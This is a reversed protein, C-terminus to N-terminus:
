ANYFVVAGSTDSAVTTIDGPVTITPPTTDVYGSQYYLQATNLPYFNAGGVILVSGDNLLTATQAARTDHMSATPSFSSLAPDFIEASALPGDGGTFLVHGSPLLTATNERRFETM